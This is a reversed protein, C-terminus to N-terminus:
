LIGNNLLAMSNGENSINPDIVASVVSGESSWEKMLFGGGVSLHEFVMFCKHIHFPQPLHDKKSTFQACLSLM